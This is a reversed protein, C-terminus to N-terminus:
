RAVLEWAAGSEQESEDQNPSVTEPFVPVTKSCGPGHLAPHAHYLQGLWGESGPQGPM